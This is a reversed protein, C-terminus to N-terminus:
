FYHEFNIVNFLLGIFFVIYNVEQAGGFGFQSEAFDDFNNTRFGANGFIKRFLEEPDITSRFQWNQEFGQPGHGPHGGARGMQESTQGYTDYEKRKTDDSLVKLVFSIVYGWQKRLM